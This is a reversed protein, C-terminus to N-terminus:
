CPRSNQNKIVLGAGDVTGSLVLDLAGNSINRALLRSKQNRVAQRLNAPCVYNHHQAVPANSRGPPVCVQQAYRRIVAADKGTILAAARSRMCAAIFM